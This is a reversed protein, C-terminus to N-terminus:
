GQAAARFQSVPQPVEAPFPHILPEIAAASSDVIQTDNEMQTALSTAAKRNARCCLLAPLLVLEGLLSALMQLAMLCGFRATPAFSSLCLALMGLASILTSDLM